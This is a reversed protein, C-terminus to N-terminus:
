TTKDKKGYPLLNMVTNVLILKEPYRRFLSSEIVSFPLVKEDEPINEPRGRGTTVVVWPIHCKTRINDLIKKVNDRDHKAQGWWKDIIGQHIILVDFQQNSADGMDLLKEGTFDQNGHKLDFHELGYLSDTVTSRDQAPRPNQVDAVWIGMNIFTKIMEDSTRDNVFNMVREDIILIRLFANELLRTVGAYRAYHEDPKNAMGSSLRSLANLYSQSGSLAESYIANEPKARDHRSYKIIRCEADHGSGSSGEMRSGLLDDVMQQLSIEKATKGKRALDSGDHKYAEPLTAIREEYKRLYVDSALFMSNLSEVLTDFEYEEPVACAKIVARLNDEFSHRGSIYSGSDKNESDQDKAYKSSAGHFADLLNDLDKKDVKRLFSILQECERRVVEDEDLKARFLRRAIAKEFDKGISEIERSIEADGAGEEDKVYRDISKLADIFQVSLLLHSKLLDCYAVLQKRIYEKAGYDAGHGYDQQPAVMKDPMVKILSLLTILHRSTDSLGLSEPPNKIFSILATHYCELFMTQLLDKTTVLGRERGNENGTVNLVLKVPLDQSPFVKESLKKVWATLVAKRIALFQNEDLDGVNKLHEFLLEGEDSEDRKVVVSDHKIQRFVFRKSDADGETVVFRYNFDKVKEVGNDIILYYQTEDNETKEYACHIGKGRLKNILGGKIQLATEEKFVLLIDKPTAIAFRYGLHFRYNRLPCDQDSSFCADRKDKFSCAICNHLNDANRCVGPMAIPVLINNGDVSLGGIESVSRHGLFGASIKMEALGWNEPRLTGDSKIFSQALKRHQDHHLPLILRRGLDWDPFQPNNNSLFNKYKWTNDIHSRLFKWIVYESIDLIGTGDHCRGLHELRSPQIKCEDFIQRVRAAVRDLNQLSGGYLDGFKKDGLLMTCFDTLNLKRREEKSEKKCLKINHAVISEHLFERQLQYGVPLRKLEEDTIPKYKEGSKEDSRLFKELAEAEDNDLNCCFIKVILGEVRKSKDGLEEGESEKVAENNKLLAEIDKWLNHAGDTGKQVTERIKDILKKSKNQEPSDQSKDQESDENDDPEQLLNELDKWLKQTGATSKISGFLNPRITESCFEQWKEISDFGEFFDKWFPRAGGFVDSVNDGIVFFVRGGRQDECFDVNIELDKEKRNQEAAWGHKAANRIVNEIITYFAHQGVIGGPIAVRVDQKWDPTFREDYELFKATGGAESVEYQNHKDTSYVRRFMRSREGFFHYISWPDETKFDYVLQRHAPLNTTGKDLKTLDFFRRLFIRITGHQNMRAADDLNREQFKYARLGESRSIYDLLHKQAYFNKMLGAVFMTPTTWQPFETTATAIYDMRHQIYQYLVRDDPMTGVNHSLASLVHSGINHSGNRSMISGIAAHTSVRILAERTAISGYYYNIFSVLDKIVTKQAVEDEDTFGIFLQALAIRGVLSGVTTIPIFYVTRIAAGDPAFIVKDSFIEGCKAIQEAITLPSTVKHIEYRQLSGVFDCKNVTGRISPNIRIRVYQSHINDAVDANLKGSLFDENLALSCGKDNIEDLISKYNDGQGDAIILLYNQRHKDVLSFLGYDIFGIHRDYSSKVWATLPDVIDNILSSGIVGDQLLSLLSSAKGREGWPSVFDGQSFIDFNYATTNM